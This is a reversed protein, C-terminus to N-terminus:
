RLGHGRPEQIERPLAPCLAAGGQKEFHVIAVNNVIDVVYDGHAGEERGEEEGGQGGSEKSRARERRGEALGGGEEGVIVGSVATPRGVVM